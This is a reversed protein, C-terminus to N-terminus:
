VHAQDPRLSRYVALFRGACDDWTGIKAAAWQRARHGIETNLDADSLAALAEIFEARDNCIWGTKQHCLLDEHAPLNSAIIPLGAAMAELMVQPRGEAHVSLTILGAANPFWQERLAEPTAPGHYHVWEPLAVDDQMPGILHLQHGNGAFVEAGWDLLPGLKDRTVRTVALWRPPSGDGTFRPMTFWSPDIGFPVHIVRAISGFARELHEVMWEANPCIVTPRSALQRRLLHRMGPLVLLKFDSGLVCVAAPRGDRPLALALQMWNVQRIDSANDSRLARHIRRLISLAAMLGRLPRTRLLHAIGGRELLNDLYCADAPDTVSRVGKPLPGPPAWTALEIEKRRALAETLRLIFLGKWDNPGSPFSTSIMLIKLRTTPDSNADTPSASDVHM